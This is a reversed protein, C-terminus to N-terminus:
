SASKVATHWIGTEANAFYKQNASIQEESAAAIADIKWSDDSQRIMRLYYYSQQGDLELLCFIYITNDRQQADPEPLYGRAAYKATIQDGIQFRVQRAAGYGFIKQGDDSCDATQLASIEDLLTEESRNGALYEGQLRLYEEATIEYRIRLTVRYASFLFASSLVFVVAVTTFVKWNFRRPEGPAKVWMKKLNFCILPVAIMLWFLLYVVFTTKM